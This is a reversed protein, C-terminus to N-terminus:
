GERRNKRRTAAKIGEKWQRIEVCLALVAMRLAVRSGVLDVGHHREPFVHLVGSGLLYDVSCKSFTDVVHNAELHLGEVWVMILGDKATAYKRM